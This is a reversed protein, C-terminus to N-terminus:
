LSLLNGDGDVLGSIFAYIVSKPSIFIQSPVRKTPAKLGAINFNELLCKTIYGRSIRITYRTNVLREGKVTEFVYPHEEITPLYDFEKMLIDAAKDIVERANCAIGIRYTDKRQRNKEVWGESMFIGLLYAIDENLYRPSTPHTKKLKVKKKLEPYHSKLVVYDGPKVKQAEKWEFQFSSNLVKFKQSPTVTNFTGNGLEVNLLKKPPMQYLERVARLGEQTYVKDGREIAQIPM